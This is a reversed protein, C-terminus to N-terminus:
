SRRKKTEKTDDSKQCSILFGIILMALLMTRKFMRSM